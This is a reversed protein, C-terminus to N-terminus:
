SHHAGRAQYGQQSDGWVGEWAASDRQVDQGRRESSLSLQSDASNSIEASVSQGVIRNSEQGYLAYDRGDSDQM